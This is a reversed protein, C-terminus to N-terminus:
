GQATGKDNMSHEYNHTVTRIATRNKNESQQVQRSLSRFKEARDKLLTKHKIPYERSKGSVQVPKKNNIFM